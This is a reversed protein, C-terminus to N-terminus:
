AAHSAEKRLAEKAARKAARKTLRKRVGYDCEYYASEGRGWYERRMGYGNPNKM